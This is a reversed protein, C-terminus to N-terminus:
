PTGGKGLLLLAARLPTSLPLADLRLASIPAAHVECVLGVGIYRAVAHQRCRVHQCRPMAEVLARLAVELEAARSEAREYREACSCDDATRMRGHNAAHDANRCSQSGCDMVPRDSM